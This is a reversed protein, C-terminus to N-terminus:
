RLQDLKRQLEKADEELKAMSKRMVDLQHSAEQIAADNNQAAAQEQKVVQEKAEQEEHLREKEALDKRKQLEDRREQARQKVCDSRAIRNKERQAGLKKCLDSGRKARSCDRRYALNSARLDARETACSVAYGTVSPEDYISIFGLALLVILALTITEKKVM